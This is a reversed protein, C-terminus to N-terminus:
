KDSPFGTRGGAYGAGSHHHQVAGAVPGAPVLPSAPWAYCGRTRSGPAWCQAAMSARPGQSLKPWLLSSWDGLGWLAGDRSGPRRGDRARCDGCTGTARNLAIKLYVCPWLHALLFRAFRDEERPTEIERLACLQDGCLRLLGGGGHSTSRGAERWYWAKESGEPQGLDGCVGGLIHERGLNGERGLGIRGRLSLRM